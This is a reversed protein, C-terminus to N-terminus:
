LSVEVFHINIYINFDVKMEIKSVHCLGVVVIIHKQKITLSKWLLIIFLIIFLIVFYLLIGIIEHMIIVSILNQM